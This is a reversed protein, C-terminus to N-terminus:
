RPEELCIRRGESASRYAAETVRIVPLYADVTNEPATGKTRADVVHNILYAVCGGGFGHKDEPQSARITEIETSGFARFQVSGSGDLTLAGESGEIVMEGMTQRLNEAVHDSLRNGDFQSRTGSAHSMLLLGADEGKIAPNLQRLDAYVSTVDGFLWRFLDVFHVGTEHILFRTMSQFAPQRALYADPGRGDGPRLAFRAAYVQGLRGATLFAKIARYWPQFRFNEHVVLMSGAKTAEAAIAEAEEPSTCFPKQCIITRGPAMAARILGAHAVPPAIIDVIDPQMDRLLTPADVHAAVGYNQKAAACKDASLDSVGVLTAHKNAQWAALHFQSFYGLGIVVVSFSQGM